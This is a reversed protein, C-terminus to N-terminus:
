RHDYAHLAIARTLNRQPITVTATYTIHEAQSLSRPTTVPRLYFQGQRYEWGHQQLEKTRELLTPTRRRWLDTTPPGGFVQEERTKDDM